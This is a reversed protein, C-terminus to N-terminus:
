GRSPIAVLARNNKNTIIEIFVDVRDPSLRDNYRIDKIIIDAIKERTNPLLKEASRLYARCRYVDNQMELTFRPMFSKAIQGYHLAIGGYEPELADTGKYTLLFKVVKNALIELGNANPDDAKSKATLESADTYAEYKGTNNYLRIDM